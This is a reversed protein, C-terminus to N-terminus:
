PGSGKPPSDGLDLESNGASKTHLTRLLPWLKQAWMGEVNVSNSDQWLVMFQFFLAIIRLLPCQTTCLARARGDM